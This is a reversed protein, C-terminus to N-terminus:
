ASSKPGSDDPGKKKNRFDVTVVNADYLRKGGSTVLKLARTPRPMAQAKKKRADAKSRIMSAYVHKQQAALKSFKTEADKMEKEFKQGLQDTLRKFLFAIILSAPVACFVIGLVFALFPDAPM